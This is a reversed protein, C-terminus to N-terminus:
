QEIGMTSYENILMKWHQQIDAMTAGHRIDTASKKLGTHGIQSPHCQWLRIHRRWIDFPVDSKQSEAM